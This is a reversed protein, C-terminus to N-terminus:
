HESYVKRSIYPLGTDQFILFNQKRFHLSKKRTKRKRFYLFLKRKLLYLFNKRPNRKRFYLFNERPPSFLEMEWFVLIRKLTETEDFILFKKRPKRNRFNKLIVALFNWKMFYLSNKEPYIKKIKQAQASVNRESITNRKDLKTVPELKMDIDHSTGSNHCNENILSQDSIQFDSFFRREEKGM